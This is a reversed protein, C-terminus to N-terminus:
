HDISDKKAYGVMEGDSKSKSQECLSSSGVEAIHVTHDDIYPYTDQESVLIAFVTIGQLAKGYQTSPILREEM